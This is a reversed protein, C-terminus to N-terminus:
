IAEGSTEGSVGESIGGPRAITFIEVGSVEKTVTNIDRKGAAPIRCNGYRWNKLTSMPVLCADVLKSLVKNYEGRPITDLWQRLIKDDALHKNGNQMQLM